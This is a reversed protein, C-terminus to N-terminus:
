AARRSHSAPSRDLEKAAAPSARQEADSDLTPSSPSICAKLYSHSAPSRELEQQQLLHESNRTRISLPSSPSICAKLYSHSAPSRELEQQQLLHEAIKWNVNDVKAATLADKLGKNQREVAGNSQASLPISKKIKVGRDEWTKVFNESQFPPGNDSCIALPYGWVEFIRSLAQNTSNADTSKVEVVHLYRLRATSGRTLTRSIAEFEEDARYNCLKSAASVRKVYEINVEGSKQVMNALKSRQSLIYARSGFYGDLRAIANSYPLLNADPMGPQTSTGELLELLSPGAKIRFLDFKTTEETAQILNMSANFVNKWHDYVRKNLETDGSAPVCEPISLSSRSMNNMTMLLSENGNVLDDRMTSSRAGAFNRDQGTAALSRSLEEKEKRTRELEAKVKLLENMMKKSSSEEKGKRGKERESKSKSLEDKSKSLEDKSKKTPKEKVARKEPPNADGGVAGNDHVPMM